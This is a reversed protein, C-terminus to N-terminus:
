RKRKDNCKRLAIKRAAISQGTGASDVCLAITRIAIGAMPSSNSTAM